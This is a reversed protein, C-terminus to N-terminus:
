QALHEHVNVFSVGMLLRGGDEGAQIVGRASKEPRRWWTGLLTVGM